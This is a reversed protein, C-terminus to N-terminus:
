TTSCANPPPQTPSYWEGPVSGKEVPKEEIPWIPEGTVRDFVYAWGQKTVQAVIKRPRGSVTVDLLVPASGTDWDWIDHHILQYHWIRKGTKLDLCVLSSSFLNNGPRPGGYQDGTTAEVPIYVYGLRRLREPAAATRAQATMAPVMADLLPLAVTAGVGRLFTRRSLAKKTDIM